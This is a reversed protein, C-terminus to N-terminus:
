STLRWPCGDTVADGWADEWARVLYRRTGGVAYGTLYAGRRAPATVCATATCAAGAARPGDDVRRTKGDVRAFLGDPRAYM